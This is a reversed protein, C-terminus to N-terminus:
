RRFFAPAPGLTVPGLSVKGNAMVLPLRLEGAAAAPFDAGEPLPLAAINTLMAGALLVVRQPILGAAAAADLMPRADPSYIALVGQARGQADAHVEGLVRARLRGLSIESGDLRLGTLQPATEPTLTKPSPARDLWVRGNARLNLTGPLPLPNGLAEPALDRLALTVDYGSDEALRATVDFAEALPKGDLTMPGSRAEFRNFEAGALVRLGLGARADSLGLTVPGARTDLMATPPLALRIVTPQLASVWAQAQPLALRASPTEVAVGVATVGIRGPRRLEHLTGIQLEPVEAVIRRMERALLREAGLWLGGLLLALVTLWLLLRRM